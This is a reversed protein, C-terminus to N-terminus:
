AHACHKYITCGWCELSWPPSSMLEPGQFSFLRPGLLVIWGKCPDPCCDWSVVCRCHVVSHGTVSHIKKKEGCLSKLPPIHCTHTETQNRAIYKCHVTLMSTMVFVVIPYTPRVVTTSNVRCGADTHHVNGMMAIVM